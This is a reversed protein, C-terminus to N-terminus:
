KTDGLLFTFETAQCLNLDVQQQVVQMAGDSDDEDWLFVKFMQFLITKGKLVLNSM